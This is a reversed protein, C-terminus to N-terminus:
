SSYRPRGVRSHFRRHGWGPSQCPQPTCMDRECNCLPCTFTPHQELNCVPACHSQVVCRHPVLVPCRCASQHTKSKSCGAASGAQVEKSPSQQVAGRPLLAPMSGLAGPAAASAGSQPRGRAASALCYPSSAPGEVDVSASPSPALGSCRARRGVARLRPGAAACVPRHGPRQRLAASSWGPGAARPRTCGAPSGPPGGAWPRAGVARARWRGLCEGARQARLVVERHQAGRHEDGEQEHRRHAPRHVVQGCARGALLCRRHCPPGSGPRGCEPRGAICASRVGTPRATIHVKNKTEPM